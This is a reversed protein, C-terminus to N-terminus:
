QEGILSSWRSDVELIPRLAESLVRSASKWRTNSEFSFDHQMVYAQMENNIVFEDKTKYLSQVFKNIPLLAFPNDDIIEDVSKRYADSSFYVGHFYEHSPIGSLVSFANFTLLFDWNESFLLAWLSEEEPYVEVASRIRNVAHEFDSRRLNYGQWFRLLPSSRHEVTAPIRGGQEIVSAVRSLALSTKMSGYSSCVLARPFELSRGCVLDVKRDGRQTLAQYNMEMWNLYSHSDRLSVIRPWQQSHPNLRRGFADPESWVDRGNQSDRLAEIRSLHRCARLDGSTCGAGLASVDAKTFESNWSTAAAVSDFCLLARGRGCFKALRRLNSDQASLRSALNFSFEKHIKFYHFAFTGGACLAVTIAGIIALYHKSLLSKM